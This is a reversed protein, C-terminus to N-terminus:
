TSGTLYNTSIEFFKTAKESFIFKVVRHLFNFSVSNGSILYLFSTTPTFQVEQPPAFWSNQCAGNGKHKVDWRWNIYTNVSPSVSPNGSRGSYIRLGSNWRKSFELTCVLFIENNSMLQLYPVFNCISQLIRFSLKTWANLWITSWSGYISININRIGLSSPRPWVRNACDFKISTPWSPAHCIIVSWDSKHFRGARSSLPWTIVQRFIFFKCIFGYFQISFFYYVTNDADFSNLSTFSRTKQHGPQFTGRLM